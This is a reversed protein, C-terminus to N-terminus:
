EDLHDWRGQFLWDEAMMKEFRGCMIEDPFEDSIELIPQINDPQEAKLLTDLGIPFM